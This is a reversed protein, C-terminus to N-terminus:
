FLDTKGLSSSQCNDSQEDIVSYACELCPAFSGSPESFGSQQYKSLICKSLVINGM